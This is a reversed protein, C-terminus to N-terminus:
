LTGNVTTAGLTDEVTGGVVAAFASSLASV